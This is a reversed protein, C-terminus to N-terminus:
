GRGAWADDPEYGLRILTDGAHRAFARRADPSFHNVWDGVVGKRLFSDRVETGPRRGAVREFSHRDVIREVDVGRAGLAALLRGVEDVPARRLAEYSTHLANPVDAWAKAFTAWDFGPHPQREFAFDIFSPLNRRVEAPDDPRLARRTERVLDHNERENPFMCHFYWSVMVDRGDRGVVVARPRGAGPLIHGHLVCRGLTPLRNRPFPLGLGEALMESVWSGGSKPYETVLLDGRLRGAGRALVWRLVADAKRVALPRM